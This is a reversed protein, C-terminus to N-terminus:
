KYRLRGIVLGLTWLACMLPWVAFMSLRPMGANELFGYSFTLLATGAFALAFAEFQIRRQLEDLARIARVVSWCLLVAPVMPAMSVVIQMTQGRDNGNLLRLSVVLTVMYALMSLIFSLAIRSM